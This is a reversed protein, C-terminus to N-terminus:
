GAPPPTARLASIPHVGVCGPVRLQRALAIRRHLASLLRAESRSLDVPISIQRLVVAEGSIPEVLARQALTAQALLRRIQKAELALHGSATRIAAIVAPTATRPGENAWAVIVNADEASEREHCIRAAKAAVPAPLAVVRGHVPPRHPPRQGAKTSPTTASGCGELLSALLCICAVV